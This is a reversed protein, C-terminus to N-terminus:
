LLVKTNLTTYNEIQKQIFDFTTQLALKKGEEDNKFCHDVNPIIVMTSNPSEQSVSISNDYIKTTKDNDGHIFIKPLNCNVLHKWPQLTRRERLFERGFKYSKTKASNWTEIFGVREGEEFQEQTFMSATEYRTSPYWLILSSVQPYKQFDVMSIVGGGFSAGLLIINKYERQLAFEIVNEVDSVESKITLDVFEGESENHARFDFRISAINAKDLMDELLLFNGKETKEGKIGHCMIICTDSQKDNFVASLNLNDSQIKVEKM